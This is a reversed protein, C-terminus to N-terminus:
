HPPAGFTFHPEGEADIEKLVGRRALDHLAYGTEAHSTPSGTSAMYLHVRWADFKRCDMPYAHVDIVRGTSAGEFCFGLGHKRFNWREGSHLLTGRNPYDFLARHDVSAPYARRLAAMLGCQLDLFERLKSEIDMSEVRPKVM